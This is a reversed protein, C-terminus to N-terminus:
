NKRVPKRAIERSGPIVPLEIRSPTARGRHIYYNTKPCTDPLEGQCLEPNFEFNGYDAGAISIRIKHGKQFLWANPMLDFRLEVVRGYEFVRPTYDAKKFGHWPLDPKVRLTNRTQWDAEHLDKFGARLQGESVYHAKGETDVDSLYVFVDGAKQNASIWLHIIPHGVMEVTKQLPDTEYVIAKRDHDTRMMLTDMVIMLLWRNTEKEGYSSTHTFNVKYTDVGEFLSTQSLRRRPELFYSIVKQEKLPWSDATRWGKHMVHFKVPPDSDLKNDKDKLHRNFFRVQEAFREWKFDGEYETLDSYDDVLGLPNHFVPGILLRSSSTDALTAHIKTTGKIFGDFWGGINLVPLKNEAIAMLMSGTNSDAYSIPEGKFMTVADAYRMEERTYTVPHIDALHERINRYYTHKSRPADDEYRPPADDVFLTTDGQARMPIEDILEGDGDEDVVPTVPLLPAVYRPQNPEYRGLNLSRLLHNYERLWATMRIGGKYAGETFSDFLIVQPAICKLAEPKNAATVLQTWGVYSGGYMGVKGNSWPQAAIWDILEKGDKGIQPMLQAYSGSSAGSGRVDASVWAYGQSLMIRARQDMSRDFILSWSHVFWWLGLRQYWPMGPYALARGYPTYELIVPFKEQDPGETPLFIDVALQTNDSLTVFRSTKQFSGFQPNFVYSQSFFPGLDSSIDKIDYPGPKCIYALLLSIVMVSPLIIAIKKWIGRKKRKAFRFSKRRATKGRM